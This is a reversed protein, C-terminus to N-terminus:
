TWYEQNRMPQNDAKLSNDALSFGPINSTISQNLWACNQFWHVFHLIIENLFWSSCKKQRFVELFSGHEIFESPNRLLNVWIGWYIWESEEIFEIQNRLLNVRIGWYIWESQMDFESPNWLLNVWIGWHIWKTEEIYWEFEENLESTKRLSNM